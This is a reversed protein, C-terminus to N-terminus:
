FLQVGTVALAVVAMVTIAGLCFGIGILVSSPLKDDTVYVVKYGRRSGSKPPADGFVKPNAVPKYKGSRMHPANLKGQERKRM